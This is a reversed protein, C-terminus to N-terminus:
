KKDGKQCHPCSPEYKTWGCNECYGGDAEPFECNPCAEISFAPHALKVGWVRRPKSAEAPASDLLASDVRQIDVTAPL